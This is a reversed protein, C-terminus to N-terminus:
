LQHYQLQHNQHRHQSETGKMSGHGVSYHEKISIARPTLNNAYTKKRNELTCM